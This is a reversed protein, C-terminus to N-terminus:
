HKINTNSLSDINDLYANKYDNNNNSKSCFNANKFNVFNNTKNPMLNNRLLNTNFNFKISFSIKKM